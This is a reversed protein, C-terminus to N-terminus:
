GTSSGTPVPLKRDLASAGAAVGIFLLAVWVGNIVVPLYGLRHVDTFPYPYFDSALPGRIMTFAMYLLPFIVTLRVVFGPTLRRPGFMVWGAVTLVPVVTHQLQNAAQAWSDLDLLRSLAVHFVVFTVTISILGTLRLVAFVTGARNLNLALLLCAVGVLINSLITFYAFINLARNLPSGGFIQEANASVPLQIIIGAAVCAATVAFWPRAWRRDM